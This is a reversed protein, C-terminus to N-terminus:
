VQVFKIGSSFSASFPFAEGRQVAQRCALVSGWILNLIEDHLKIIKFRGNEFM